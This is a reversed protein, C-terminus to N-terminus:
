KKNFSVVHNGKMVKYMQEGAEQGAERIRKQSEAEQAKKLRMNIEMGKSIVFENYRHYNIDKTDKMQADARKIQEKLRRVEIPDDM